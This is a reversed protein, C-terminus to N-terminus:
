FLRRRFVWWALAGYVMTYVSMAAMGRIAESWDTHLLSAKFFNPLLYNLLTISNDTWTNIFIIVLLAMYCLGGLFLAALASRAIVSIVAMFAVLSAAYLLIKIEIALLYALIDIVPQEVHGSCLIAIILGMGGLGLLLVCLASLYRAFFIELRSCRNGLLRFYGSGLDSSFQDCAALAAYLPMANMNFIFYFSLLPANDVFLRTAAAHDILATIFVIGLQQIWRSASQDFQYSIVAWFIVFPLLFVLGKPRSLAYQLDFLILLGLHHLRM